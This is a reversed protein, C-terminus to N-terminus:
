KRSEIERQSKAWQKVIAVFAPRKGTFEDALTFGISARDDSHWHLLNAADKIDERLAAGARTKAGRHLVVLVGQKGRVNVTAFWGECYFSPSNWKVGETIARDAGLIAARMSAIVPKLPHDLAALLADVAAPDDHEPPKAPKSKSTKTTAM